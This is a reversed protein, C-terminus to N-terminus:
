VKRQFAAGSPLSPDNVIRVLQFGARLYYAHLQQNSTWADLRLWTKGLSGARREAWDLIRKGLDGGAARRAVVLRHVYLAAQPIDAATWIREDANEDLTVTALPRSDDELLWVTANKIGDHIAEKRVPYQWQNTGKTALWERAENWLLIVQEADDPMALRMPLEDGARTM